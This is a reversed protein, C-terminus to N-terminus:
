DGLKRGCMPCYNIPFCHHKYQEKKGNHYEVPSVVLCKGYLNEEIAVKVVYDSYKSGDKYVKNSIDEKGTCYECKSM